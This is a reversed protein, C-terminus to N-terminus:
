LNDLEDLNKLALQSVKKIRNKDHDNIIGTFTGDKNSIVKHNIVCPVSDKKRVGVYHAYNMTYTDTKSKNEYLKKCNDYLTSIDFDDRGIIEEPNLDYKHKLVGNIYEIKINSSDSEKTGLWICAESYDLASELKSKLETEHKYDTIDKEIFVHYEKSNFIDNKSLMSRVWRIKGDSRVIKFERTSPWSKNIFYEREQEKSDQHMCTDLLFNFDKKYFNNLEYGYIDSIAQNLYLFKDNNKDANFIIIGTDMQDLNLEILERLGEANKRNTIDIFTVIIGICDSNTSFIPQKRIIGWKKKRTGPIYGERTVTKGLDIINQDEDIHEKAEKTSFFRYDNSGYINIKSDMGLYKKFSDNCLIFKQSTDKIYFISASSTIISKLIFNTQELQFYFKNLQTIFKKHYSLQEYETMSSISSWSDMLNDFKNFSKSPGDELDSIESVMINLTNALLRINKETPVTKGTEWLWVTRRSINLMEALKTANLKNHKRLRMFEEKYFNTM